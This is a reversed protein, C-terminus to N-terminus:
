KELIGASLSGTDTQIFLVAKEGNVVVLNLGIPSNQGVYVVAGGTCPKGVKYAGSVTAGTFITGNISGNETGSLAGGGKLNIQGGYVLPGSGMEIGGGQLGYIGKVGALTCKSVGQAYATGSVTTGTDAEVMQIQKGGEIITLSFNLTSQGAPTIAATGTCNANIKYTGLLEVGESITGNLSSTEAGAISGNGNTSIQGVTAIPSGGATGNVMFGYNGTL